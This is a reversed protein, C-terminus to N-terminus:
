HIFIRESGLGEFPSVKIFLTGAIIIFMLLVIDEGQQKEM